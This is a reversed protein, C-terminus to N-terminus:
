RKRLNDNFIGYAAIFAWAINIFAAPYSNDYMASFFLLLGGFLNFLHFILSSASWVKIILLLYAILFLLAGFWGTIDFILKYATQHM